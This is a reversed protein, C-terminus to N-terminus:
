LPEDTRLCYPCPNDRHGTELELATVGGLSEAIAILADKSPKRDGSEIRSIYAPSVNESELDSQSLGRAQRYQRIRDGVTM